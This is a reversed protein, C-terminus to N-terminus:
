RRRHGPRGDDGCLRNSEDAPDVSGHAGKVDELEDGVDDRVQMTFAHRESASGSSSVVQRRGAAIDAQDTSAALAARISADDGSDIASLPTSADAGKVNRKSAPSSCVLVKDGSYDELSHM